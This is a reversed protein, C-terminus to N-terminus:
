KKKKEIQQLYMFDFAQQPTFNHIRCLRLLHIAHGWGFSIYQQPLIDQKVWCSIRWKVYDNKQDFEDMIVTDDIKNEYLYKQLNINKTILTDCCFYEPQELLELRRCYVLNSKGEIKAIKIFNESIPPDVFVSMIEEVEFGMFPYGDSRCNHWPGKGNFIAPPIGTNKCDKNPDKISSVEMRKPLYAIKGDQNTIGETYRYITM